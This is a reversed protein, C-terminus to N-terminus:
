FVLFLTVLSIGELSRGGEEDTADLSLPPPLTNDPKQENKSKSEKAVKTSQKNYTEQDDLHPTPTPKQKRSLSQDRNSQYVWMVTTSAGLQEKKEHEDVRLADEEAFVKARRNNKKKATKKKTEVRQINM